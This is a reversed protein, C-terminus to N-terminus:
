DKHSASLLIVFPGKTNRPPLLFLSPLDHEHERVSFAPSGRAHDCKLWGTDPRDAAVHTQSWQPCFGPTLFSLRPGSSGGHIGKDPLCLNRGLMRELISLEPPQTETCSRPPPGLRNRQATTLYRGQRTAEVGLSLLSGAPLGCLGFVTM